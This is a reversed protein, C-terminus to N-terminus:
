RPRDWGPAALARELAARGRAAVAPGHTVLVREIDLELLPRLSPVLRKRYWHEHEPGVREPTWVRLRRGVGVVADGFLLARHAPVFLPLEARRPNGIAHATVGFPLEDGATIPRLLSKDSMRRACGRPGWVHADYRGCLLEASRVHYPITIMIEVHGRVVGDLQSDEVVLPDVLLTDRGIRMAFSAVEAGFEGPHWEPHRATWRWIGDAVKQM